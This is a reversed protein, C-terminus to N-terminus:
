NIWSDFSDLHTDKLDSLNVPLLVALLRILEWTAGKRTGSLRGSFVANMGGVESSLKGLPAIEAVTGLHDDCASQIFCQHCRLKHSISVQACSYAEVALLQLDTLPEFPVQKLVRCDFEIIILGVAVSSVLKLVNREYM